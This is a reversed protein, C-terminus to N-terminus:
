IELKLTATPLFPLMNVRKGTDREFYFINKRDYANIVSVDVYFNAFAISFKKSLSLDLRHYDPLRGLNKDGLLLFPQYPTLMNLNNFYEEADLKDYYGTLKTFPLGSSYVWIISAQWDKGMNWELTLNVSHRSDYKPYYRWGEVTKYTWGMSYSGMFFFDLFKYKLLYEVGYAEGSGSVLDKDSEFVKKENIAPFNKIYKYYGETELSLDETLNAELGLIYHTSNTPELYEPIIVWPEFLSIVESEDSLTTVEQQFIGCAGKLALQPIFRYTFSLRPENFFKGGNVSLGTLNIRTGLDIGLNKFRLYKYKAYVSFNTGHSGIDTVTGSLNELFLKTNLNIINLGVGLQDKSDYVYNCDMRMNVDRVENKKSRSTSFNPIVEGMFNSVSFSMEFFLPSDSIQFWKFGFIGNSWKLDAKTPDNNMLRDDSLLGQFTIKSGEVFEPNAYNVKFSLDYFDLPISKNNLFKKYVDSSYSKRGTVIFSGYPIPGEALAKASLYSIGVKTSYNNKNGDKTFINMVSSVRGGYEATFGGKYFEINNVMEPDIISFLGFAHFPNYITAGNIMVLNQNSAGGRIYYRASVDGTSRVGPMYQLSRFIDTEVGKPMLELEKITIRQLSIDTANEEAIRKETKEIVPLLLSSPALKIDLHTMKGKELRINLKRTNYGMYSVVLTLPKGVPLSTILFYGKSDSYAGTSIEKVVVSAYALAEGSTSDTILGRLYGGGSQAPTYTSCSLAIILCLATFLFFRSGPLKKGSM